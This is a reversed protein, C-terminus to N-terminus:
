AFKPLLISSEGLFLWALWGLLVGTRLAVVSTAAILVSMGVFAFRYM